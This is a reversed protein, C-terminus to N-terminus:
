KLGPRIESRSRGQVLSSILGPSFHSGSQSRGSLDHLMRAVVEKGTGSEGTILASADSAALVQLTSYLERMPTSQGVLAGLRGEAEM